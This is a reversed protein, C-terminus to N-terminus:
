PEPIRSLEAVLREHEFRAEKRAEDGARTALDMHELVRRVRTCWDRMPDDERAVTTANELAADRAVQWNVAPQGDPDDRTAEWCESAILLPLLLRERILCEGARRVYARALDVDWELNVGRPIDSTGAAVHLAEPSDVPFDLRPLWPQCAEIQACADLIVRRTAVATSLRSSAHREISRLSDVIRTWNQVKPALVLEGEVRALADRLRILLERAAGRDASLRLALEHVDAALVPVSESWNLYGPGLAELVRVDRQEFRHYGVDLTYFGPRDVRMEGRFRRERVELTVLEPRQVSSWHLASAVNSHLLGLERTELSVRVVAHDPLDVTGDIRLRDGDYRVIVALGHPSERGPRVDAESAPPSPPSPPIPATAVQKAAAAPVEGRDPATIRAGGAWLLLAAFVTAAAAWGARRM